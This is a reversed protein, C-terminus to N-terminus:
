GHRRALVVAFLPSDFAGGAILEDERAILGSLLGSWREECLAPGDLSNLLPFLLNGWYPREVVIEFRQRVAPLIRSSRIMESPDAPDIPAEVAVRRLEAPVREVAERAWRLAGDSWEDQSPGVYEDLYLYGGPRLARHVEDLLRDPDAVHHLSHHFFAIDYRQAPLRVRDADEVRYEIRDLGEAAALREAERISAESVDFAELSGCIGARLVARELNGTGCGLSLGRGLRAPLWRSGLADVPWLGPEGTIRRNVARRVPEPEAWYVERPAEAKRDWFEGAAAGVTEAAAEEEGGTLWRAIRRFIGESM